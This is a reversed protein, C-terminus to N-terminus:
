GAAAGGWRSCLEKQDNGAAFENESSSSSSDDKTQSAMLDVVQEPDTLALCAAAARTVFGRHRSM